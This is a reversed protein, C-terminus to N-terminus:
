PTLSPETFTITTYTSYAANGQEVVNVGQSKLYETTREALGGTSSGNMISVTAGEEALVNLM